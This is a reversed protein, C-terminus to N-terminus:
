VQCLSNRVRSFLNLVLTDIIWAFGNWNFKISNFMSHIQIFKWNSINQISDLSNLYLWYSSYLNTLKLPTRIFKNFDFFIQSTKTFLQHSLFWPMCKQMFFYLRNNLRRTQRGYEICLFKLIGIGIFERHNTRTTVAWM